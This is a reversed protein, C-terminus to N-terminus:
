AAKNQRLWAVTDRLTEDAPRPRFELESQAYLSSIGWRHGAMEIVVPDPLVHLHRGTLENVKAAYWLLKGPLSKWKPTIGAANAVRRFFGDLSMVHGPLNYSPRPSAMMMARVMAEAVDRIDVFHMEGKLIFPLRGELLRLVNSTSRFRHDGPGLMVPPRFVVLEVGLKDALARAEREARIKSAYYPWGAVTADCYPATEDPVADAVKSCGLVGSSSAFVIRCKKDAAVRVMNATGEVNVRIMEEPSERTHKVIAALHFIGDIQSLPPDNKWQEVDFLDGTVLSVSPFDSTWSERKWTSPDRVLAVIKARPRTRTLVELIHRGLFGTAGTILYAPEVGSM